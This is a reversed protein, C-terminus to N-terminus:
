AKILPDETKALALDALAMELGKPGQVNLKSLAEIVMQFVTDEEQSAAKPRLMDANKVLYDKPVIYEATASSFIFSGMVALSVIALVMRRSLFVRLM